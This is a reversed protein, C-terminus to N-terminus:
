LMKPFKIEHLMKFKLKRPWRETIGKWPVKSTVAGFFFYSLIFIIWDLRELWLSDLVLLFPSPPSSSHWQVQTSWVVPCVDACLRVCMWLVDTTIALMFFLRHEPQLMVFTETCIHMVLVSQMAGESSGSAEKRITSVLTGRSALRLPYTFRWMSRIVPQSTTLARSSDRGTNHSQHTQLTSSLCM